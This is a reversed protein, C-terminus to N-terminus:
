ADPMITVNKGVKMGNAIYNQIKKKYIYYSVANFIKQACKLFPNM